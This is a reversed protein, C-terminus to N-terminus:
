LDHLSCSATTPKMKTPKITLRNLVKFNSLSQKVDWKGGRFYQLSCTANTVDKVTVSFTKDCDKHGEEVWRIRYKVDNEVLARPPPATSKEPIPAKEKVKPPPPPINAPSAGIKSVVEFNSLSQNEQWKGTRYYQLSCTGNEVDKITVTFSKGYDTHGAETWKIKYKNNNEVIANKAVPISKEPISEPIKIIMPIKNNRKDIVDFNNLSQNAEWKGTRYYQISCTGKNIDVDKISVSFIKGFDRHDAEIWKIRYKSNDVFAVPVHQQAYPAPDASPKRKKKLADLIAEIPKRPPQQRKERVRPEPVEDDMNQGNSDDEDNIRDSRRKRGKELANEIDPSTVNRRFPNKQITKIHGLEWPRLLRDIGNVRVMTGHKEIGTVKHTKKSYTNSAKAFVEDTPKRVRVTSDVSLKNGIYKPDAKLNNNKGLTKLRNYLQLVPDSAVAAPTTNLHTHNSNNYNSVLDDLHDVWKKTRYATLYRRIKAKITGNFREVLSNALYHYTKDVMRHGIKHKKFWRAISHSKFESGLDSVVYKLGLNQKTAVKLLKRFCDKTADEQTNKTAYCFAFRSGIEIACFLCHYGNNIKKDSFYCFDVQWTGRNAEISFMQTKRVIPKRHIQQVEQKALWAKIYKLTMPNKKRVKNYLELASGLGTKPDYYIQKLIANKEGDSQVVPSHVVSVAPKINDM